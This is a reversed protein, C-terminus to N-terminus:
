EESTSGTIKQQLSKLEAEIQQHRVTPGSPTTQVDDPAELPSECCIESARVDMMKARALNLQAHIEVLSEQLEHYTERRSELVPMLNDARNAAKIKAHLARRASAEDGSRLAKEARTSQDEATAQLDQINQEMRKYSVVFHALTNKAQVAGDELERIKAEIETEPTESENLWQSLNARALKRINELIPM